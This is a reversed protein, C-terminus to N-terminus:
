FTLGATGLLSAAAPTPIVQVRGEAGLYAAGLHYAAFLGPQLGFRTRSIAEPNSGPSEIAAGVFTYPRVELRRAPFFRMGLDGGLMTEASGARGQYRTADAGLYVGSPFTYGVRAGYAAGFRSNIGSGGSAEASIRNEVRVPPRPAEYGAEQAHARTPLLLPLAVASLSLAVKTIARM